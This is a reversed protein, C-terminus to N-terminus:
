RPDNKICQPTIPCINEPLKVRKPDLDDNQDTYWRLERVTQALGFDVLVGKRRATDWLFNAPKVDRHIVGNHHTWKLAIMLSRFYQRIEEYTLIDIYARIDLHSHFPLIALIDDKNRLVTILPVVNFRGRFVLQPNAFRDVIM